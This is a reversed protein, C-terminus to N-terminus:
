EIPMSVSLNLSLSSAYSWPSLLNNFSLNESEAAVWNYSCKFRFSDLPDHQEIGGNVLHVKRNEQRRRGENEILSRWKIDTGESLVVSNTLKAWVSRDEVRIVRLCRKWRLSVLVTSIHYIANVVTNRAEACLWNYFVWETFSQIFSVSTCLSSSLLGSGLPVTSWWDDLNVTREVIGSPTFNVKQKFYHFKFSLVQIM